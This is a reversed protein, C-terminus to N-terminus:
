QVVEDASLLLQRPIPLALALATKRNLVLEFNTPQEVPLTSPDAGNLIRDVYRAVHRAMEALNPGYSMFAGALVEERRSAMTPLRRASALAVIERRMVLNVPNPSILLADPREREIAAAAAEFEKPTGMQVRVLQLGLSAAANDQALRLNALAAPDLGSFSGALYVVRAIGPVAAKLLELRKPVLDIQLDAIGTVNTGPRALSAILGAGVPDSVGSMVIPITTTAAKAARVGPGTGVVIVDVPVGVLEAALPAFREARGEYYRLDFAVNEGEVHGRQELAGRFAAWVREGDATASPPVTAIYGVRRIRTAPAGLAPVAIGAGCLLARLLGRRAIM